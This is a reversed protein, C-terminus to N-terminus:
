LIGIYFLRITKLQTFEAERAKLQTGIWSDKFDMLSLALESPTQAETVLTM